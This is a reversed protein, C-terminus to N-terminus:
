QLQQLAPETVDVAGLLKSLDWPRHAPLLATSPVLLVDLLNQAGLIRTPTRSSSFYFWWSQINPHPFLM